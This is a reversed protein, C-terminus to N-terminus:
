CTTKECICKNKLSSYLKCRDPLKDESFKEFRNMYEYPYINQKVLKLLDGRFEQLSYKFDNDSLNKVSANLSFDMFEMSEIFVANNNITFAMYNELGNSIVSVKVNFKGIKQM